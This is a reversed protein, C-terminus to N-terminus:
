AAIRSNFDIGTGQPKVAYTCTQFGTVTKAPPKQRRPLSYCIKLLRHNVM